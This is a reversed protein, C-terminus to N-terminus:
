KSGEHTRGGDVSSISLKLLKPLQHKPTTGEQKVTGSPNAFCQEQLMECAFYGLHHIAGFRGATLSNKPCKRSPQKRPLIAMDELGAPSATQIGDFVLGGHRNPPDDCISQTFNAM